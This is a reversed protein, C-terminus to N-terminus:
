VEPINCYQRHVRKGVVISSSSGQIVSLLPYFHSSFQPASCYQVLVDQLSCLFSGKSSQLTFNVYRSGSHVKMPPVSTITRLKLLKCANAVGKNLLQLLSGLQQLNNASFATLRQQPYTMALSVTAFTLKILFGAWEM